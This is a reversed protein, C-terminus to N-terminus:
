SVGDYFAIKHGQLVGFYEPLNAPLFPSSATPDKPSGAVVFHAKADAVVRIFKTSKNFAVSAAASTYTISQTEIAPEMPVAVNDGSADKAMEKYESINATAM